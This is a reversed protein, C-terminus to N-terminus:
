KIDDIVEVGNSKYYDRITLYAVQRPDEKYVTKGSSELTGYWAKDRYDRMVGWEGMMGDLEVFAYLMNNNSYPNLTEKLNLLKRITSDKIRELNGKTSRNHKKM